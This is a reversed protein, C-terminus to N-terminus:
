NSLKMTWTLTLSYNLTSNNQKYIPAWENTLEDVFGFYACKNIDETIGSGKSETVITTPFLAVKYVNNTIFSFPVKFEFIAVYDNPDESEYNLTVGANSYTIAYPTSILDSTWQWTRENTAVEDQLNANYLKIQIPRSSKDYNGVICDCLFKFLTNTGTNHYTKKSITKSGRQIQVDLKGQYKIGGTNSTTATEKKIEKPQEEIQSSQQKKTRAM